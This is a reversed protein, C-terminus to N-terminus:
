AVDPEINGVFAAPYCRFQEVEKDTLPRDEAVIHYLKTRGSFHRYHIGDNGRAILVLNM